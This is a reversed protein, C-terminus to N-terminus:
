DGGPFLAESLGPHYAELRRIHQVQLRAVLQGVKRWRRVTSPTLGACVSLADWSLGAEKRWAECAAPWSDADETIEYHGNAM